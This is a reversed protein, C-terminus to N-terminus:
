GEFIAYLYAEMDEYCEFYKPNIDVKTFAIRANIVENYKHPYCFVLAKEFKYMFKYLKTRHKDESVEGHTELYDRDPAVNVTLSLKDIM